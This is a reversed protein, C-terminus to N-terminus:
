KKFREIFSIPDLGRSIAQNKLVKRLKRYKLSDKMNIKLYDKQEEETLNWTNMPDDEFKYAKDFYYHKLLRPVSMRREPEFRLCRYLVDLLGGSIEFDNPIKFEEYNFLVIQDYNPHKKSELKFPKGNLLEYIIM